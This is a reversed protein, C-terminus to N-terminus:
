SCYCGHVYGLPPGTSCSPNDGVVREHERISISGFRVSKDEASPSTRSVVTSHQSSKCSSNRPSIASDNGSAGSANSHIHGDSSPSDKSRSSGSGSIISLISRGSKNSHDPTSSSDQGGPVRGVKEHDPGVRLCSRLQRAGVTNGNTPLTSRSGGRRNKKSKWVM